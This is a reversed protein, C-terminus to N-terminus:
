GAHRIIDDRGFRLHSVTGGGGGDGAVRERTTDVGVDRDTSPLGLLEVVPACSHHADCAQHGVVEDGAAHGCEFLDRASYVSTADLLASRSSILYM